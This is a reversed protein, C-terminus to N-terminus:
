GVEWNRCGVREHLIFSDFSPKDVVHLNAFEAVHILCRSRFLWRRNPKPACFAQIIILFNSVELFWIGLRHLQNLAFKSIIEEVDRKLESSPPLSGVGTETESPPNLTWWVGWNSVSALKVRIRAGASCCVDPPPTSAARSIHLSSPPLPISLM